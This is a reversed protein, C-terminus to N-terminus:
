SNYNKSTSQAALIRNKSSNSLRLFRFKQGWVSHLRLFSEINANYNVEEAKWCNSAHRFRILLVFTITKPICHTLASIEANILFM